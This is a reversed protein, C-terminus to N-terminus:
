PTGVPVVFLKMFWDLVHGQLTTVMKEKKIDVNHVQHVMWIAECLFWHQEPNEAGNGNFTPLRIDSRAMSNADLNDLSYNLPPPSGQASTAISASDINVVREPSSARSRVELSVGLITYNHGSRPTEAYEESEEAGECILSYDEEKNCSGEDLRLEVEYESEEFMSPTWIGGLTKRRKGSRFRRGSRLIGLELELKTSGLFM